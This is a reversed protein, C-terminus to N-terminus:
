QILPFGGGGGFGYTIQLLARVDFAPLLALAIEATTLGDAETAM